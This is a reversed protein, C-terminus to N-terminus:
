RGISKVRAGNIEKMVEAFLKVSKIRDEISYMTSVIILENVQTDKLFSEIQKKVTEKSGVFSYRLMQYVSPHEFMQKLEETFATPPQLPDKAGTLVGVFMRILTTFLREAEEDTDAVVVNVGAMTYPQQLHQSPQFQEHYIKLANFLHATAFHSAFAYPLGKRAALYASDTSSGLIYFPVNQGEAIAARVKASKNEPSFYTQLKEVEQPFAHAMQMFDSRIAQATQPDTGPARGLGLDIRNPYLHALTGFQEAIILPSHNPLMVGGSGVRITHTNEAVYGILLSTASSGIHEANHHEAFWYREYSLSEAVKALELSNNLTEKISSGKPVLALELISYATNNHNM